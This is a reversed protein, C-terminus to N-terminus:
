GGGDRSPADAKSRSRASRWRRVTLVIAVLLVLVGLLVEDPVVDGVRRAWVEAVFQDDISLVGVLGATGETLAFIVGVSVLVLGSVLNTSTTVVPGFSISRPTLWRRRTRLRDWLPVLVVLPLVMGAAYVALLVGGQVRDGQLAAVALVSGLIPGSCVGAIGYVLGLAFVAGVGEGRPMSSIRLLRPSVGITQLVGLGIILLSLGTVLAPRHDNVFAGASAAAVGLPVLTLLLGAYFVVIRGALRGPTVFTYAFFAPLLLVSCPSLLTLVGGLLAAALSLEGM